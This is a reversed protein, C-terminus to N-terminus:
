KWHPSKVLDYRIFFRGDEAMIFCHLHQLESSKHTLQSVWFHGNNTKNSNSNSKVLLFWWQEIRCITDSTPYQQVLISYIVTWIVMRHSGNSIEMRYTIQCQGDIYTIPMLIYLICTSKAKMMNTWWIITTQRRMGTYLGGRIGNELMLVM